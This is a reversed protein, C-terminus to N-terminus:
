VASTLLLAVYPSLKCTVPVKDTAFLPSATDPKPVKNVVSNFTPSSIVNLVSAPVENVLITSAIIESVLKVIETATPPESTEVLVTAVLFLPLNCSECFFIEIKLNGLSATLVNFVVDFM